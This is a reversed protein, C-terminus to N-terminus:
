KVVVTKCFETMKKRTDSFAQEMQMRENPSLFSHLTSDAEPQLVRYTKRGNLIGKYVWTPIVEILPREWTGTVTDKSFTCNLIAGADSYRWRQNSIFNGLSYACVMRGTASSTNEFVEIPQLVHPHSGIVLDVGSAACFRIVRRQDSNPVREYEVGFHLVVAVLDCLGRIRQIDINMRVTDIINILYEKGNPIPNGNTGYSYSLLGVRVGKITVICASDRGANSAATGVGAMGTAQVVRLTREIGYAGRDLSHNNALSLVDFGLHRLSFAYDDPSNFLPYGSYKKNAGALVTELNGIFFDAKGIEDKVMSFYPTFDFSDGEVRCYQFQESHCMLDGVAGLTILVHTQRGTVPTKVPRFNLNVLLTALGLVVTPALSLLRKM